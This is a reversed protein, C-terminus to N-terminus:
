GLRGTRVAGKRVAPIIHPKKRGFGQQVVWSPQADGWGGSVSQPHPIDCGKKDETIRMSLSDFCNEICGGRKEVIRGEWM